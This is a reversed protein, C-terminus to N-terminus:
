GEPVIRCEERNLPVGTWNRIPKSISLQTTYLYLFLHKASGLVACVQVYEKRRHITEQEKLLMKGIWPLWRSELMAATVLPFVQLGM